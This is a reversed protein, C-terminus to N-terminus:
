RYGPDSVVAIPERGQLSMNMSPRRKENGKSNEENTEHSSMNTRTRRKALMWPSINEIIEPNIARNGGGSEGGEERIQRHETVEGVLAELAVKEARVKHPCLDKRHGYM